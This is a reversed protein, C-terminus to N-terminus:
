IEEVPEDGWYEIVVDRKIFTIFNAVEDKSGDSVVAIRGDTLSVVMVYTDTSSIVDEDLADLINLDLEVQLITM